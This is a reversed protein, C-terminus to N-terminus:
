KDYEKDTTQSEDVVDVADGNSKKLDQEDVM